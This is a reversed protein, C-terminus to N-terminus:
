MTVDSMGRGPAAVHRIASKKERKKEPLGVICVMLERDEEAAYSRLCQAEEFGDTVNPDSWFSTKRQVAMTLSQFSDLYVEFGFRKRM